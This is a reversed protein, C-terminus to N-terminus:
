FAYYIGAYIADTDANNEETANYEAFATINATIDGSVGAYFNTIDMDDDQIQYSGYVTAIDALAYSASFAATNFDVDGARENVTYTAAAFLGALEVSASVGMSSIDDGGNFYAAGVTFMEASYDASLAFDNDGDGEVFSYNASLAVPGVAKEFRVARGSGESDAYDVDKDASENALEAKELVAYSSGTEGFKVTGFDGAFGIWADDLKVEEGDNAEIEFSALANVSESVKTTVDFQVQGWSHIKGDEDKSDDDANVYTFIADVEGKMSVATGDAEYLNAAQASTAFLATISLALLTKKM